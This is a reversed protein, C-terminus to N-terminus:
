RGGSIRAHNFRCADCRDFGREVVPRHQRGRWELRSVGAFMKRTDAIRAPIESGSDKALIGPSAVNGDIEIHEFMVINAGGHPGIEVSSEINFTSAVPRLQRRGANSLGEVVRSPEEKEHALLTAEEVEARDILRKDVGIGSMQPRIRPPAGNDDAM